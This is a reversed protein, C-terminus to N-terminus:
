VVARSANMRERARPALEVPAGELVVSYLQELTFNDGDIQIPKM